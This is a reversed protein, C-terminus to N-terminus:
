QTVEMTDKIYRRYAAGYKSFSTKYINEKSLFDALWLPIASSTKVEMINMNEDLVPYGYIDSSLDFDNLRSFINSDFTIRFDSKIITEYAERDYSLFVVPKLTDYYSRFYDIERSIQSDCPLPEHKLFANKVKCYPLSLRRKYVIGDFKKKLEVFIDSDNQPCGYSRVRLKEKYLPKEISRRILEYTDTDFYINRINTRGYKDIKMYPQMIKLLAKKQEDTILYKVEYRKFINQYGM